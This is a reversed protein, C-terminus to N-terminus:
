VGDPLEVLEDDPAVVREAMGGLGVPAYVRTGTEITDSELVRGAAERGVVSPVPPAGAHYRGSSIWLDVPNMPAATVDILSQGPSREPEDFERYVPTKGIEELVAAKM